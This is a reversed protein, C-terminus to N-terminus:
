NVGNTLIYNAIKRREEKVNAHPLKMYKDWAKIITIVDKESDFSVILENITNSVKTFVDFGITKLIAYHYEENLKHLEKLKKIRSLTSELVYLQILLDSIHMAIEQEEELQTMFKQLCVGSIFVAISKLRNVFEQYQDIADNNFDAIDEELEEAIKTFRSFIDLEGKMGKKVFEKIIVLRNIENTGEYIRSIRVARYLKEVPSEASFGMGGYIQVAQDVIYDQIESGYVKVIASEISFEKLSNIKAESFDKGEQQFEERLEDIANGLRFVASENAFIYAQMRAIKDQIAGFSSISKGFQERQKAYDVAHFLAKKGVGICSAGLKIRGTNLTNLAIKLGKNRVGLLQEKPVKVNEFFVQCTSWGSFGMKHEEPGITIGGFDKEVVFASLNKDDEVKAFVIFLDAIGANSIWAKQGNIVYNGDSDITAKTKGANADSGANPETLAFASLLKGSIMETLYKEKLYSTGYLFIPAIGISTQVGLAGTFSYGRSMTVTFHLVDKFSLDLGGYAESVELGLFGYEGCKELLKPTETIAERTEMFELRSEIENDLFSEGADKMMKTEESILEPIYYEETKVDNLLFDGGRKPTLIENM